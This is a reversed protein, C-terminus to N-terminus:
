DEDRAKELTALAARIQEIEPEACVHSVCEKARLGGSGFQGTFM